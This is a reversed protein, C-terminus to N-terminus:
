VKFVKLGDKRILFVLSFFVFISVVLSIISGGRFSESEYKLTIQHKGKPIFVAQQNINAPFIPVKQGNIYSAWGPFFSNSIILLSNEETSINLQINNGTENKISLSNKGERIKETLVKELIVENKFDFNNSTLLFIGEKITQISKYNGVLRFQDVAYKTKYIFNKKDDNDSQIKSILSFDQSAIKYASIIYKVNSMSLLNASATSIAVENKLYNFSFGQNILSDILSYRRTVLSPYVGLSQIDYLLNINPTLNNSFFLFESPNKWGNKLFEKNWNLASSISYVKGKPLKNLVEVSKPKKLWNETKDLVIFNRGFNFLQYSAIIFFLMIFINGIKTKSLKIQINKLGYSSLIAISWAVLLLFRSPVRFLNFPFITFLIYLPSNNGFTLLISIIFITIYVFKLNKKGINIILAFMLFIIPLIGVYATNEWFIGWNKNFPPYTGNAPNGFLFPFIFTLLHKTPYPFRTIESLSVGKNRISQSVFEQSPLLQIASLGLAFFGALIFLLSIKKRDQKQSKVRLIFYILLGFLTIFSVQPFGSLYQQSIIISLILAFILKRKQILLETIAFILPLFSASQILNFHQLHVIFIGSFTFIISLWLSQLSSLKITKGYFYSGLSTTLFIIVYSLNFALWTPFISFFILNTINFIGMQGEALIPYGGALSDTWIPITRTKLNQSLYDKLPYNLNWVDSQGFDPTVLITSSPYFLNIFFIIPLLIIILLAYYQKIFKIFIKIM